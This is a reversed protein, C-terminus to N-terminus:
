PRLLSFISEVVADVLEKKLTCARKYIQAEGVAYLYAPRLYSKGSPTRNILVGSEVDRTSDFEIISPDPANQSTIISVLYDNGSGYSWSALVVAPRPKFEAQGSLPFPLIVIDGKAFRAM